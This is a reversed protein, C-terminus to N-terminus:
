AQNAYGRLRKRCRLFIAFLGMGALSSIRPEPVPTADVALTYPSGGGGANWSSGDFSYKDTTGLSWGDSSTYSNPDLAWYFSNGSTSSDSSTAVAWYVTSPWLTIDSATFTYIGAGTPDPGILLGLGSGPMGGNDSYLSLEFGDPNGAIEAIRLQM